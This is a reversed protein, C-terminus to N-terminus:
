SIDITELKFKERVKIDIDVILNTIEKNLMSLTEFKFYLGNGIKLHTNKFEDLFEQNVIGRNHVILNRQKIFQNFNKEEITNKFLEIGLKDLFFKKIDSFKGYFLQKIKKESLDILLSEMSNFSLIYDLPEKESSKLIEPKKLVVESLIDKFYCLANDVLRSYAMQSFYIEYNKIDFISDGIDNNLTEIFRESIKNGESYVVTTITKKIEDKNSHNAFLIYILFLEMNANEESYTKFSKTHKILIKTGFKNYIFDKNEM